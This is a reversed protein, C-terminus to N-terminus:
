FGGGNLVCASEPEARSVGTRGAYVRNEDRRKGLTRHKSM